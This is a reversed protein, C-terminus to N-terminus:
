RNLFVCLFVVAASMLSDLGAMGLSIFQHRFRGTQSFSLELLVTYENHLNLKDQTLM